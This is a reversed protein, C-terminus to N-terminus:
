GRFVVPYGGPIPRRPGAAIAFMSDLFRYLAAEEGAAFEWSARWVWDGEEYLTRGGGFVRGADDTVLALERARDTFEAGFAELPSLYVVCCGRKVYVGIHMPDRHPSPSRVSFLACIESTDFVHTVAGRGPGANAREVIQDVKAWDAENVIGQARERLALDGHEWGRLVEAHAALEGQRRRVIADLRRVRGWDLRDSGPLRLTEEFSGVLRGLMDAVEQVGRASSGTVEAAACQYLRVWGAAVDMRGYRGLDVAECVGRLWGTDGLREYMARRMAGGLAVCLGRHEGASVGPHGQPVVLAGSSRGRLLDDWERRGMGLEERTLCPLGPRSVLGIAEQVSLAPLASGSM